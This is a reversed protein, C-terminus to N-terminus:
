LLRHYANILDDSAITPDETKNFRGFSIRVSSNALERSIGMSLLVHSPEIAGSNCASGTGIMIRPSNVILADADVGPFTINSTNPLRIAEHGNIFISKLQSLLASEFSDRLSRLYENENELNSHCIRCAEGFGVIGPTNSTGPRLGYEQGGGWFLPQLPLVNKGGNVFLAGVGKPGYIKHSSFTTLDVELDSADFHIKGIAQTADCHFIAGFSHTLDALEKIPQVTGVENNAAQISVLLTKDDLFEKLTDVSIIGNPSPELIVIEFGENYLSKCSDLVAKHEIASTIIKKRKHNANAKACGLISLNISETAGSTFFVENGNGNILQAVEERSEDIAIKSKRGQWHLGNNPNGYVKNFFPMMSEVVKPDCATTANNDLYIPEIKIKEM